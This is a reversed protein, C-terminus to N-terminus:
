KSTKYKIYVIINLSLIMLTFIPLTVYTNFTDISNLTEESANGFKFFVPFFVTMFIYFGFSILYSKVPIFNNIKNFLERM